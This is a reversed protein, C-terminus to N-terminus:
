AMDSISTPTHTHPHSSFTLLLLCQLHWEVWSLCPSLLCVCSQYERGFLVPLFSPRREWREVSHWGVPLQSTDIGPPPTAEPLLLPPVLYSRATHCPRATLLGAYFSGSSTATELLEFGCSGHPGLPGLWFCYWPMFIRGWGSLCSGCLPQLCVQTHLLFCCGVQATSIVSELFFFPHLFHVNM